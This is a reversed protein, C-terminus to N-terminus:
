TMPMFVSIKAGIALPEIPRPKAMGELSMSNTVSVNRLGAAHPHPREIEADLL